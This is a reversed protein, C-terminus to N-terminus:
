WRWRGGTGATGAVGVVAGGGGGAYPTTVWFYCIDRRAVMAVQPTLIALLILAEAEAGLSRPVTAVITEQEV